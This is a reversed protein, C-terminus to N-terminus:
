PLTLHVIQGVQGLGLVVSHSIALISELGSFLGAATQATVTWTAGADTTTLVALRGTIADQMLGRGTTAGTFEFRRFDEYGAPHNIPTWSAGGDTTRLSQTAGGIVGVSSSAFRVTSLGAVNPVALAAWTAGGDTTRLVVGDGVAIGVLASAFRVSYLDNNTGSAVAAWTMGGDTTRLLIGNDGAAVGVTTSAMAVTVLDETTGSAITSWTAGGDTSRRIRGGDGVILATNADVFTASNPYSGVNAGTATWSVGGDTSRAVGGVTDTAILTNVGNFAGALLDDTTAPTFGTWSAGADISNRQVGLEGLAVARTADRWVAVALSGTTGAPVASWSAGGNTTRLITGNGAVLGTSGDLFAVSRLFSTSGSAAAVWTAGGDNSRRMAGSAGVAIVSSTGPIFGVGYFGATSGINGASWTAGSDTSLAFRGATGNSGGVAVFSTGSHALDEWDDLASSVTNWTAGGDTTRLIRNEGVAVGLTASAFRVARLNQTTGSSVSNWTLGGDISRLIVGDAGVVVAILPTAFRVSVFFTDVSANNAVVAWTAGGDTTRLLTNNTAALGTNADLFHADNVGDGQPRPHAWCQSTGAASQCVLGAPPQPAGANVTLTANSSTVSGAANNVVVGFVAGSDAMVTPATTFSAATAGAIPRGNRLWQYSLPASGIAVVTFTAMQGVTVTTSAPQQTISPAQLVPNVTLTASLSTVSGGSNYVQVSLAAGNDAMSAAPVTYSSGSAGPIPAGNRSWQFGLPGPGDAFVAFTAPQGENVSLDRPQQTITPAALTAAPTTDLHSSDSCAALLGATALAIWTRSLWSRFLSHPKM